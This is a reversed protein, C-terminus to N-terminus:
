TKGKQKFCLAQLSTKTDEKKNNQWLFRSAPLLFFLLLAIRVFVIQLFLKFLGEATRRGEVIWTARGATNIDVPGPRIASPRCTIIIIGIM